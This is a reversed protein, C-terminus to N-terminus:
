DYTNLNFNGKCQNKHEYYGKRKNEEKLIM